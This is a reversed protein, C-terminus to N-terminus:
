PSAPRCCGILRSAIWGIEGSRLRVRKWGPVDGVVLFPTGDYVKDLRRSSVDPGVKLAAWGDPATNIPYSYLASKVYPTAHDARVPPADPRAIPPRLRENEATLSAVVNGSNRVQESLHDIEIAGAQVQERLRIADAEAAQRRRNADDAQARSDSLQKTLGEKDDYAGQGLPKKEQDLRSRDATLQDHQEALRAQAAQLTQTSRALDAKAAQMKADQRENDARAADLIDRQKAVDSRAVELAAQQRALDAKAGDLEGRRPDLTARTAGKDTEWTIGAFAGGLAALVVTLAMAALRGASKKPAVPAVAASAMADRLDAIKQFRREPNVALATDIAHAARPPCGAPVRKLLPEYPDPGKAHFLADVRDQGDAPDSGSLARYLVAGMSYIDAEPTPRAKARMQEPATYHRKAVGVTGSMAKQRADSLDRSVSGFDILVPRGARTILINDPAIDRHILGRGHVYSLAEMVPEAIPRLEELCPPQPRSKLWDRLTQGDLLEMIMYGTDNLPVYDHVQVINPHSLGCLTTTTEEFKRLAWSITEANVKSYILRSQGDRRVMSSPFFEKIAVGKGTVRNHAEYTIGFGGHGIMRRISYGGIAAGVPLAELTEADFVASEGM